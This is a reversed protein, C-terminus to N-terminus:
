QEVVHQGLQVWPPLFIHEVADEAPLHKDRATFLISKPGQETALHKVDGIPFNYLRAKRPLKDRADRSQGVFPINEKPLSYGRQFGLLFVLPRVGRGRQMPLKYNSSNCLRRFRTRHVHSRWSDRRTAVQCCGRRVITLRSHRYNPPLSSAFYRCQKARRM